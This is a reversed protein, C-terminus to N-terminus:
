AESILYKLLNRDIFTRVTLYYICLNFSRFFRFDHHFTVKSEGCQSLTNSRIYFLISNVYQRIPIVDKWEIDTRNQTYHENQRHLPGTSTWYDWSQASVCDRESSCLVPCNLYLKCLTIQDLSALRFIKNFFVDGLARLCYSTIKM